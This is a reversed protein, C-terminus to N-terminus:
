CFTTVPEANRFERTGPPCAWEFTLTWRRCSCDVNGPRYAITSLVVAKLQCRIIRSVPALGNRFITRPKLFHSHNPINTHTDTASPWIHVQGSIDPHLYYKMNLSNWKPNFNWFYGVFFFYYLHAFTQKNNFIQIWNSTVGFKYKFQHTHEWYLVLYFCDYRFSFDKWKQFDCNNRPFYQLIIACYVRM